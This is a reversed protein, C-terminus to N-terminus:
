DLGARGWGGYYDGWDIGGLRSNGPRLRKVFFLLFSSSVFFSLQQNIGLIGDLFFIM